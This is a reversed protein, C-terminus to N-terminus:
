GLPTNAFYAAKTEDAESPAIVRGRYSASEIGAKGNHRKTVQTRLRNCARLGTPPALAAKVNGGILNRVQILEIRLM